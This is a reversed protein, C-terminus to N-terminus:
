MTLKTSLSKPIIKLQIQKSGLDLSINTIKQFNEKRKLSIIKFIECFTINSTLDQIKFSKEFWYDLYSAVPDLVGFGFDALV